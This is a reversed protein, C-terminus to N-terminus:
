SYRSKNEKEKLQAELSQVKQNLDETGGSAADNENGGTSTNAATSEM